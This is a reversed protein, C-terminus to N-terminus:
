PCPSKRAPTAPNKRLFGSDRARLAFDWIGLVLDWIGIEELTRWFTPVIHLCWIRILDGDYAGGKTKALLRLRRLM